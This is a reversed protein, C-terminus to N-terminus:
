YENLLVAMAKITEGAEILEAAYRHLHASREQANGALINMVKPDSKVQDVVEENPLAELAALEALQWGTLEKSTRVFAPLGDFGIGQKTVNQYVSFVADGHARTYFARGMRGVLDIKQPDIKGNEELINDALHLHIIECIVLHGAGGSEGLTIIDKVKCEFQVPSEAVRFAKVKESALSTFGTKEFESVDSPYEISALAMQRTMPYNVVNIVAEGTARVNALTDKTTNNSVRRNSSFVLTPPNSSFVNFFSYPALNPRGEEDVTSVFAIPRPAVAGVLYQHLEPVPISAPDISKM